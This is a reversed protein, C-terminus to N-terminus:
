YPPLWYCIIEFLIMNLIEKNQPQQGDKSIVWSRMVRSVREEDLPVTHVPIPQWELSPNFVQSGNPPYLGALNAEASM